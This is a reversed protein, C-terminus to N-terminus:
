IYSRLKTIIIRDSSSGQYREIPVTRYITVIVAIFMWVISHFYTIAYNTCVLHEIDIQNGLAKIIQRQLMNDIIEVFATAKTTSKEIPYQTSKYDFNVKCSTNAIERGPQRKPAEFRIKYLLYCCTISGSRIMMLM